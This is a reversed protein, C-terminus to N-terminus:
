ASFVFYCFPVWQRCLPLCERGKELTVPEELVLITLVFWGFLAGLELFLIGSCYVNYAILFFFANFCLFYIALSTYVKQFNLSTM